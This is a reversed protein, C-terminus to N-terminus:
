KPEQFTSSLINDGTSSPVLIVDDSQISLMLVDERSDDWTLASFEDDFQKNKQLQDDYYICWSHNQYRFSPLPFNSRKLYTRAQLTPSETAAVGLDMSPADKSCGIWIYYPIRVGPLMHNRQSISFRTGFRYELYDRRGGDLMVRDLEFWTRWFTRNLWNCHRDFIGGPYDRGRFQVQSQAYFNVVAIIGNISLLSVTSDIVPYFEPIMSLSYSMTVLDAGGSNDGYNKSKEDYPGEYDELNSFHCDICIVKVNRWGLREFRAQAIKLLSPTLDVLYVGRFFKPVDLYNDM